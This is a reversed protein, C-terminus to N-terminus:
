SEEARDEASLFREIDEEQDELIASNTPLYIKGKGIGLRLAVNPDLKLLDAELQAETM